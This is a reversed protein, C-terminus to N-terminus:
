HEARWISEIIGLTRSPLDGLESARVAAELQAIDSFGGLVTTVGSQTLVFRYATEVLTKGQRQALSRFAAAQSPPQVPVAGARRAAGSLPHPAGGNVLNDALLGGALPSYIAVGVGHQNAYPILQGFDPQFTSGQPGPLAATPNLLTLVINILAFEGTDILERAPRADDGRCIVGVFRAKGADRVRKLGELAGGKRLYDQLSLTRYERGQLRTQSDIPGNHVQVVDV